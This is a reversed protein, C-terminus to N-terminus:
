RGAVEDAFHDLNVCVWRPREGPMVAIGGTCLWVWEDPRMYVLWDGANAKGSGPRNVVVASLDGGANVCEEDVEDLWAEITRASPWSPRWKAEVVILTWGGGASEPRIIHIDGHDKAGHLPERKAPVGRETLARVVATEFNTGKNKSPNAM